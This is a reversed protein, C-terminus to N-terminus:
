LSIHNTPLFNGSTKWLLTIWSQSSSEGRIQQWAIHSYNIFLRGTLVVMKDRRWSLMFPFIWQAPQIWEIVGRFQRHGPTSDQWRKHLGMSEWWVAPDVKGPWDQQEKTVRGTVTWFVPVGRRKWYHDQPRTDGQTPLVTRSGHVQGCVLPHRRKGWCTVNSASCLWASLCPVKRGWSWM